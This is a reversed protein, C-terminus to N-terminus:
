ANWLGLFQTNPASQESLAPKEEQLQGAVHRKHNM